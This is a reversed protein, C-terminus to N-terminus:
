SHNKFFIKHSSDPILHSLPLDSLTQPLLHLSSDKILCFIVEPCSLFDLFNVFRVSSCELVPKTISMKYTWQCM